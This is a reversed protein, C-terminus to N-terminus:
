GTALRLRGVVRRREFWRSGDHWKWVNNAATDNRSRRLYYLSAQVSTGPLEQHIPITTRCCISSPLRNGVEFLGVWCKLEHVLQKNPLLFIDHVGNM